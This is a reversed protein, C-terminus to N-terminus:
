RNVEGSSLNARVWAQREERYVGEMSEYGAFGRLFSPKSKSIPDCVPLDIFTIM